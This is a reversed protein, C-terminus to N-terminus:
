LLKLNIEDVALIKVLDMNINVGVPKDAEIDPRVKPNYNEFLDNYLLSGYDHKINLCFTEIIFTVCIIIFLMEPIKVSKSIRHSNQM